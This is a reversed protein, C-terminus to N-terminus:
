IGIQEGLTQACEPVWSPWGGPCPAHWDPQMAVSAPAPLTPACGALLTFAFVVGFLFWRSV